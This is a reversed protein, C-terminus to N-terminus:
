RKVVAYRLWLVDKRLRKVSKLRLATATRKARSTSIEFVAPSGITGDVLPAVILSLEDILGAELFSGNVTGGGDIRVRKIGFLARLKQLVRKLDLSSKGGFLYSVNADRLHQLYDDSVKETLVEIVHETDVHDTDWRCKGQPDIAVAFTKRDTHAVFDTRAIPARAKKLRRAKSSSFEQMTTRGVLWADVKIKEAVTEFLKAPHPYQWIDTKIRGDVSTMMNCTVHPLKDSMM